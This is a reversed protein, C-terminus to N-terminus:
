KIGKLTWVVKVKDQFMLALSRVGLLVEDSFLTNHVIWASETRHGVIDCSIANVTLIKSIGFDSAKIVTRSEKHYLSEASSYPSPEGNISMYFQGVERFHDQPVDTLLPFEMIGHVEILGNGYDITYQEGIVQGTLRDTIQKATPVRSVQKIVVKNDKIELGDGVNVEYKGTSQNFVIGNGMNEPTVAYVASTDEVGNGKTYKSM